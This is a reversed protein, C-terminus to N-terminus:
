FVRYGGDVILADGTHYASAPSALYVAIGGFDDPTGWRRIPVRPIVKEAVAPSQQLGATMETSIWGPLVANARIGHRALEVACARVMAVLGAKSAAYHQGRPPSSAGATAPSSSARRRTASM